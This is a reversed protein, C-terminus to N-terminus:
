DKNIWAQLLESLEENASLFYFDLSCAYRLNILPQSTRFPFGKNSLNLSKLRSRPHFLGALIGKRLLPARLSQIGEELDDYSLSHPIAVTLSGLSVSGNVPKDFLSLFEVACQEIINELNVSTWSRCDAVFFQGTNLSKIAWSCLPNGGSELHYILHDFVLASDRDEQRLTAIPLAVLKHDFSM